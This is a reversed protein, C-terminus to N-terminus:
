SAKGDVITAGDPIEVEGEPEIAIIRDGQVMLTHNELVLESDMPIINVNVFVIIQEDQAWAPTLTQTALVLLLIVCSIIRTLKRTM